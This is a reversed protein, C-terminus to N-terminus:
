ICTFLRYTGVCSNACSTCTVIAAESIAACDWPVGRYCSPCMVIHNTQRLTESGRSQWLQILSNIVLTTNNCIEDDVLTGNLWEVQYLM